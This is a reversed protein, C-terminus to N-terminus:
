CTQHETGCCDSSYSLLLVTLMILAPLAARLLINHNFVPQACPCHLGLRCLLIRLGVAACKPLLTLPLLGAALQTPAHEMVHTDRSQWGM